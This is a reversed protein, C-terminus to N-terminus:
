KGEVEKSDTLVKILRASELLVEQPVEETDTPKFIWTEDDLESEEIIGYCHGDSDMFKIQLFIDNTIM